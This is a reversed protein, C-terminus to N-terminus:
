LPIYFVAVLIAVVSDFNLIQFLVFCCFEAIFCVPMGAKSLLASLDKSLANVFEAAPFDILPVTSEMISAV